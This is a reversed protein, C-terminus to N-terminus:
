IAEMSCLLGFLRSIAQLIATQKLASGLYDARIIHRFLYHLDHLIHPM